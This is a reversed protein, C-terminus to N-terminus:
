KKHTYDLSLNNIIKYNDNVWKIVRNLGEDLKIKESWNFDARVKMSDLKYSQDKGMREETINILDSYNYEMIACIRKVLDKISILNYNSIHYTEGNKSNKIIKYTAQMADNIHVFSRTSYGGGHLNLKIKKKISIITKPIIRHLQQHEGFVNASRTFIVPFNYNRFYNYLHWDLCSRSTSYPTTPNFNMSEKKWSRIDGYVEPTTVHLYKDIFNCKNLFDIIRVQAIINTNYWDLPSLWSEAVMGQAAFNIVYNPKNKKIIDFLKKYDKNLDIKYLKFLNKKKNQIKKYPLFIPNLEGRSTGIVEINKKLILNVFASGSFSNAGIVLFKNKL